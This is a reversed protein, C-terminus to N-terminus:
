IEEQLHQQHQLQPNAMAQVQLTQHVVDSWVTGFWAVPLIWAAHPCLITLFSGDAVCQSLCVSRTDIVGLLSVM